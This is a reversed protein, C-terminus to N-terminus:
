NQRQYFVLEPKLAEEGRFCRLVNMVSLVDQECYNRIARIDHDKWWLAAVKSGDTNQKPSDLGFVHCLLDLSTYHKYDGFKWLEMTDLHRIEWPKKGALNLLSPLPLGQILMRRALYPFDFEKGNHACLLIGQQSPQSLFDSFRVLIEKEDAGAFSRIRFKGARVRGASICIIRGFEAYIGARPYLSAATDEGSRLMGAKRDWLAREREPVSEYGPYAPVTELDIVLVKDLSIESLM